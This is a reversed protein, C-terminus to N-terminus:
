NEAGVFIGTSSSAHSVFFLVGPLLRSLLLLRLLLLLLVPLLFIPLLGALGLLTSM